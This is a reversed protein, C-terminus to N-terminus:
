DEYEVTLKRKRAGRDVTKRMKEIIAKIAKHEEMAISVAVAEDKSRITLEMELGENRRILDALEEVDCVVKNAFDAKKPDVGTIRFHLYERLDSAIRYLEDSAMRSKRMKVPLTFTIEKGDGQVDAQVGSKEWKGRGRNRWRDAQFASEQLNRINSGYGGRPFRASLSISGEATEIDRSSANSLKKQSEAMGTKNYARVYDNYVSLLRNEDAGGTRYFQSALWRNFSIDIM